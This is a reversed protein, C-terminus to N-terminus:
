FSNLTEDPIIENQNNINYFEGNKGEKILLCNKLSWEKWMGQSDIRLVVTPINKLPSEINSCPQIFIPTIDNSTNFAKIM